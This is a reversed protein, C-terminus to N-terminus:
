RKQARLALAFAPNDVGHDTGEAQHTRTTRADVAIIWVPMPMSDMMNEEPMRGVIDHDVLSPHQCEQRIRTREPHSVAVIHM